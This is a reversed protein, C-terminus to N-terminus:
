NPVKQKSKKAHIMSFLEQLLMILLTQYQEETHDLSMVM